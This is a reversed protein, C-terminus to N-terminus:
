FSLGLTGYLSAARGARARERVPAAVGLRLRYGQDYQLAADLNLEAGV